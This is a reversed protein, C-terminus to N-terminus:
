EFVNEPLESPEDPEPAPPMGMASMVDGIPVEEDPHPMDPLRARQREREIRVARQRRRREAPLARQRRQRNIRGLHRSMEEARAVNRHRLYQPMDELEGLEAGGASMAAEAIEGFGGSFDTGQWIEGTLKAARHGTKTPDGWPTSYGLGKAALWNPHVYLRDGAFAKMRTSFSIRTIWQTTGSEPLYDLVISRAVANIAEYGTTYGNGTINVADGLTLFTMQKDYYTLSGEIVTNKVTLLKQDALAQMATTQGYDLWSPYDLVWTRQVGNVTYATGAYGGGSPSQVTLAGLSYPVLVQIDTPNAIASGGKNLQAQTCYAACVPQYFEIYGTQVGIQVSPTSTYGFGGSGGSLTVATIVGASNSTAYGTAGAGKGGMFTIPITTSSPPYGAGGTSLSVTTVAGGSITCTGTAQTVFMGTGWPVVQITMPWTMAIGGTVFSVNAMPTQTMVIADQVGGTWPVAHSFQQVVAQAVSPPVIFFKRWVDAPTTIGQFSTQGRIQYNTYGSNAFPVDVTLTYNNGSPVTNSLIRRQENFVAAGGVLTYAWVEAAKGAWWTTTSYSIPVPATATVSLTTSTMATINGNEWAGPPNIYQNYNWNAQQTPTWGYILSGSGIAVTGGYTLSLNAGQINGAGRIKVQTYCESFDETISDLTCPNGSGDLADLTFTTAPLSQLNIHRITGVPNSWYGGPQLTTGSPVIWTGYTNYWNTMLENVTNWLRGSCTVPEPPVITLAALDTSNFGTIGIATLQSAHLDYLYTLIQGVTLASMAAVYNPDSELLNFTIEGTGATSTIWIQNMLWNLGMCRYGIAIQGRSMGAPHLSVIQGIFVLVGDVTLTVSQGQRFLGPLASRIQTFELTDASDMSIQLRNLVLGDSGCRGVPIGNITLVSSM